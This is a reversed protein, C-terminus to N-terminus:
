KYDPHLIEELIEAADRIYKHCLTKFLGQERALALGETISIDCGLLDKCVVSKNRDQFRKVFKRALEYTGEKVDNDDPKNFDSQLGIVMFAGTVAGCIEGIAMGRGFVLSIKIASDRKLGSGQCYNSLMAQACNYGEEFCSVASGVKSM